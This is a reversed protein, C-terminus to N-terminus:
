RFATKQMPEAKCVHAVDKVCIVAPLATPPRPTPASLYPKSRGRWTVTWFTKVCAEEEQRTTKKGQRLMSEGKYMASILGGSVLPDNSASSCNEMTRPQTIPKQVPNEVRFPLDTGRKPEPVGRCASRFTAHKQLALSGTKASVKLAAVGGQYGARDLSM